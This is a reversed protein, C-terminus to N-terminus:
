ESVQIAELYDLILQIQGRVQGETALGPALDLDFRRGWVPMERVGHAVVPDRGDVMRQVEARPFVGGRRAAIRTLDAPPADLAAASPGDGVGNPGHCSACYRQYAVEGSEVSQEREGAPGGGACGAALAAAAACLITSAKM